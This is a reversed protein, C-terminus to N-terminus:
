SLTDRGATFPRLTSWFCAISGIWTGPIKFCFGAGKAGMALTKVIAKCAAYSPAFTKSTSSSEAATVYEGLKKCRLM